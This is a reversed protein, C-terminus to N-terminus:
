LSTLRSHNPLNLSGLFAAPAPPNTLCFGFTSHIERPSTLGKEAQPQPTPPLNQSAFRDIMRVGGSTHCSFTPAEMAIFPIGRQAIPVFAQFAPPGSSKSPAHM